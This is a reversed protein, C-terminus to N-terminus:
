GRIRSRIAQNQKLQCGAKGCTKQNPAARKIDTAACHPCKPIVGWDRHATLHGITASPKSLLIM